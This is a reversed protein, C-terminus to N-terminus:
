RTTTPSPSHEANLLNMLTQLKGADLILEVGNARLMIGSSTTMVAVSLANTAIYTYGSEFGMGCRGGKEGTIVTFSENGFWSQVESAEMPANDRIHDIFRGAAVPLHKTADNVHNSFDAQTTVLVGNDTTTNM